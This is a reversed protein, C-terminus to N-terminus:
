DINLKIQINKNEVMIGLMDVVGLAVARVNLKTKNLQIRSERLLTIDLLDNLTQSMHRTIHVLVGLDEKDQVNLSKSRRELISQAINIVGHLPNRLEHATNALFDDKQKIERQLQLTLSVNEDNIKSSRRFLYLAFAVFAIIIDFPYYPLEILNSTKYVGWLISSTTSIAALILFVFDSNGKKMRKWMLYAITAFSIAIVFFTGKFILPLRNLPIFIILLVLLLHLINILRVFKNNKYESSLTRIFLLFFVSLGIYTLYVIKVSWIYNIDLWFLLLKDDDMSTAIATCLAAFSFYLYELRTHRLIFLIISYFFHLLVIVIVLLQMAISQYNSFNISSEKGFKVSKVIGKDRFNQSVAVHVLLEIEKMGNVHFSASRNILNPNRKKPNGKEFHNDIVLEGNIFMKSIATRRPLQIKYLGKLQEDAVLIRLRYTGVNEVSTIENFHDSWDSPVAITSSKLEENNRGIESPMVLSHPYFEWEGDLYIMENKDFNWSRLDVEGQNAEVKNEHDSLYLWPIRLSILVLLFFLIILLVKRTSM